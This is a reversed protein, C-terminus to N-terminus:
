FKLSKFVRKFVLKNTGKYWAILIPIKQNSDESQSLQISGHSSAPNHRSGTENILNKCIACM